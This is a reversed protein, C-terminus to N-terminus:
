KKLQTQWQLWREGTKANAVDHIPVGNQTGGTGIAVYPALVTVKINRVADLVIDGRKFLVPPATREPVVGETKEVAQHEKPAKPTSNGGMTAALSNSAPGIPRDNEPM